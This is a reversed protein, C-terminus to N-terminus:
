SSNFLPIVNSIIDSELARFATTGRLVSFNATLDAVRHVKDSPRFKKLRRGSLQSANKLVQYLLEKPDPCNEVNGVPPLNLPVTGNPNSAATRIAQEDFLLWAETMRIPIVPIFKLPTSTNELAQLATQIENVRQSRPQAEADRHIFLIDCPYYEITKAIRDSLATPRTPFRYPNAWEPQITFDDALHQRLLWNLIPILARDSSGDSLLTYKLNTM